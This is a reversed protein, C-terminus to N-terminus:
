FPDGDSVHIFTGLIGSETRNPTSFDLTDDIAPHYSGNHYQQDRSYISSYGAATFATTVPIGTESTASHALNAPQHVTPVTYTHENWPLGDCYSPGLSRTSESHWYTDEYTYQHRAPSPNTYASAMLHDPAARRGATTNSNRTTNNYTQTWGSSEAVATDYAPFNSYSTYQDTRYSTYSESLNNELHSIDRVRGPKSENATIDDALSSYLNGDFARATRWPRPEILGSHEGIKPTAMGEANLALASWSYSQDFSAADRQFAPQLANVGLSFQSPDQAAQQLQPSISNTYRSEQSRRKTPVKLEGAATECKQRKSPNPRDEPYLEPSAAILGRKLGRPEKGKGGVSPARNNADAPDDETVAPLIALNIASQHGDHVGLQNTQEERARAEEERKEKRRRNPYKGANMARSAKVEEPNLDGELGELTEAGQPLLSKVYNNINDSGSKIKLSPLGAIRRFKTAKETLSAIRPPGQHSKGNGDTYNSM